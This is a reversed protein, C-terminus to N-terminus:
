GKEHPTKLNTVRKNSKYKNITQNVLTYNHEAYNEMTFTSSLRETINTDTKLFITNPLKLFTRSTNMIYRLRRTYKNTKTKKIQSHAQKNKDENYFHQETNKYKQIKTINMDTKHETMNLKKYKEIKTINMEAKHHTMNLKKPTQQTSLFKKANVTKPPFRKALSTCELTANSLCAWARCHIPLMEM